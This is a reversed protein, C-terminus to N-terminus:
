PQLFYVTLEKSPVFDKARVRFTDAGVKEVSGDWCFTILEGPSREVVLEFEHIPTKWTNATTLIYSVWSGPMGDLERASKWKSQAKMFARRFSDDPCGPAPNLADKTPRQLADLTLNNFDGTTPTYTHEIAVIRGAPFRQTWHYTKQVKWEPFYRGVPDAWELAGITVLADLQDKPLSDMQSRSPFDKSYNGEQYNGFNAINIGAKLLPESVDKGGVLAKAEIKYSVEKGDILVKFDEFPSWGYGLDCRYEPIPFAIESIVEEATENLFEYAVHVKKKSVFLREKVMAVRREQRLRLGGLAVEAAGDNAVLSTSLLLQLCLTVAIPRVLM